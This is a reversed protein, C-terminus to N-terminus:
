LYLGGSRKSLDRYQRLEKTQRLRQAQRRYEDILEEKKVDGVDEEDVDSLKSHFYGGLAGVAPPALLGATVAYKGGTGLASLLTGLTKEGAIGQKEFQALSDGAAKVQERMESISLGKEVCQTIFGLKFAAQKSLM